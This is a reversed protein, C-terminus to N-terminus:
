VAPSPPWGGPPLRPFDHATTVSLVRTFISGTATGAPCTPTAHLSVRLIYHRGPSYTFDDGAWTPLGAPPPPKPAFLSSFALTSCASHSM